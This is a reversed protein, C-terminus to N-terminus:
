VSKKRSKEMIDFGKKGKSTRGFHMTIMQYLQEHESTAIKDLWALEAGKMPSRHLATKKGWKLVQRTSFVDSPFEYNAFSKSRVKDAFECIKLAWKHKLSPVKGKLVRLEEKLPLPPWMIVTWRDMFATNMENTGAYAAARDKMAGISNATAFIRFNGKKSLVEGSNEKLVLKGGDELLPYLLMLIAPDAADIEDLILWYENRMAHPIVGDVWKTESGKDTARVNVKGILDSIRTEISFNIRLVPQGIRNALQEIHTTKGAGGGGTLLINEKEHIADIIDSTKPQFRFHKDFEPILGSDSKSIDNRHLLVRGKYQFFNEPKNAAQFLRPYMNGWASGEPHIKVTKTKKGDKFSIQRYKGTVKLVDAQVFQKSRTLYYSNM